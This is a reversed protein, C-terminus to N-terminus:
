RRRRMAGAGLLGLGLLALAGPVPVSDGIQYRLNPHLSNSPSGANYGHFGEVLTFPGFVMPLGSDYYYDISGWSSNAASPRWNVVYASGANFTFAINIDNWGLGTGGTLASATALVSGATHGDTSSYIVVDFSQSVLDGYIGVSSISFTSQVTIGQARGQGTGSSNGYYVGSNAVVYGASAPGAFMLAGAILSSFLSLLKM